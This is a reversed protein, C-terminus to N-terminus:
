QIVEEAEYIINTNSGTSSRQQGAIIFSSVVLNHVDEWFGEDQSGFFFLVGKDLAITYLRGSATYQYAEINSLKTAGVQSAGQPIASDNDIFEEISDYKTDRMFINMEGGSKTLVLSSYYTDDDEPTVDKVTIGKPHAFSFGSADEYTVDAEVKEEELAAPESLYSPFDQSESDTSTYFLKYGAISVVILAVVLGTLLIYKKSM